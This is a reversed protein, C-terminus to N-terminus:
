LTRRRGAPIDTFQANPVGSCHLRGPRLALSTSMGISRPARAPHPAGGRDDGSSELM